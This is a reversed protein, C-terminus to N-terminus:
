SPKQGSRLGPTGTGEDPQGRLPQRLPQAVGSRLPDAIGAQTMSSDAGSGRREAGTLPSDDMSNATGAPTQLRALDVATNRQSNQGPLPESRGGGPTELGPFVPQLGAPYRHHVPENPLREKLADFSKYITPVAAAPLDRQSQGQGVIVIVDIPFGAGQKRYLDGWISFHQIVNYQQYLAYFFGRSEIANYRNSRLDEDEGLKGGLILVARDDDKMAELAKFAIAHDIQRTGRRNGPIAFRKVSGNEHVVGFPPNTIVVDVKQSLQHHSADQQTLQHYSRQRLETYRTQKASAEGASNLENAIVNAPNAAILLAANGATPEYVTTEPTIGALTSALYAIPIPTSYAQQLVSTSSRVGLTPQRQLLNVLQDYASIRRRLRPM